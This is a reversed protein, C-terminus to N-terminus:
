AIKSVQEAGIKKGPIRGNYCGSLVVEDVDQEKTEPWVVREM